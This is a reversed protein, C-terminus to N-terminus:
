NNLVKLKILLQNDKKYIDLKTDISIKDKLLVGQVSHLVHAFTQYMPTIVYDIHDNKLLEALANIACYYVSKNVSRQVLYDHM